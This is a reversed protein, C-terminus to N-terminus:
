TRDETTGLSEPNLGLITVNKGKARYKTEIADLSAVTSVDWIHSESLDIIVSRADGVHDFLRVLDNSSAFL